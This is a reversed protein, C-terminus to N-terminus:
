DDKGIKRKIMEVIVDSRSNIFDHPGNLIHIEKMRFLDRFGDLYKVSLMEDDKAWFILVKENIHQIDESLDLDKYITILKLIDLPHYFISLLVDNRRVADGLFLLVKRRDFIINGITKIIFKDKIGASSFLILDRFRDPSLAKAKIAIAGGFSHGAIIPKIKFKEVFGKVFEGYDEFKWGKPLRSSKGAGVISPAWVRFCKSLEGIFSLSSRFSLLAGHLFLFDQGDGEVLYEVKLGEITGTKIEMGSLNFLM